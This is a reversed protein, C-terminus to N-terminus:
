WNKMFDHWFIGHQARPNIADKNIEGGRAPKDAEPPLPRLPPPLSLIKVGVKYAPYNV